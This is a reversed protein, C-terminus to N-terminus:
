KAARSEEEKTRMPVVISGLAHGAPRLHEIEEREGQLSAAEEEERAKDTFWSSERLKVFLWHEGVLMDREQDVHSPVYVAFVEPASIVPIQKKRSLPSGSDQLILRREAGGGGYVESVSRGQEERQSGACGASAILTL